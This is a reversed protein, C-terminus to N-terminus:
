QRLCSREWRRGECIRHPTRIAFLRTNRARIGRVSARTRHQVSNLPQISGDLSAPELASKTWRRLRMELVHM